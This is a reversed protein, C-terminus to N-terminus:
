VHNDNRSGGIRFWYLGLAPTPAQILFSKVLLMCIISFIEVGFVSHSIYRFWVWGLLGSIMYKLM